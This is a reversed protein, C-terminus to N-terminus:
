VSSGVVTCVSAFVDPKKRWEDWRIKPDEPYCKLMRKEGAAKRAANDKWAGAGGVKVGLYIAELAAKNVKFDEMSYRLILDAEDKPVPQEWYLYDHIIAPYTYDGDKPLMTWFLRPISAFDTVFGIPVTVPKLSEQGPNPTWDISKRLFYMADAFRGLHLTSTAATPSKMWQVIWDDTIKRDSYPAAAQAVVNGSFPVVCAGAMKLLDRRSILM